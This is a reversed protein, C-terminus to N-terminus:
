RWDYKGQRKLWKARIRRQNRRTIALTPRGNCVVRGGAWEAIMVTYALMPSGAIIRREEQLGTAIETVLIIDGVEM